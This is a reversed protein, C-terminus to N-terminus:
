GLEELDLTRVVRAPCGAAVVGPPVDSSVVSGAGIISANGIRVGAMVVTGAGIWVDDGIHIPPSPEHDPGPTAWDDHVFRVQHAVFVHNGLHIPGNMCFIGGVVSCFDGTDVSGAPGLDFFTGNYLGCDAGIRVGRESQYHIFAFSSYLWSRPGIEVNDPLPSPFWDHELLATM